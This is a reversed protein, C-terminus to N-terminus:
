AFGCGISLGKFDFEAQFMILKWPRFKFSKKKAM